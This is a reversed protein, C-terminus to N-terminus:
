KVPSRTWIYKFIKYINEYSINNSNFALDIVNISNDFYDKSINIRPYTIKDYLTM